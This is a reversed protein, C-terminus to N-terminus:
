GPLNGAPQATTITFGPPQASFAYVSVSGDANLVFAPSNATQLATALTTDATTVQSLDADVAQQAAVLNGQATALATSTATIAAIDDALTAM